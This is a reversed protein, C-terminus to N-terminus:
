TSDESNLISSAEPFASFFVEARSVSREQMLPVLPFPDNSFEGEDSALVCFSKRDDRSFKQFIPCCIASSAAFRRCDDLDFSEVDLIESNFEKEGDEMDDAEGCLPSRFEDSPMEM